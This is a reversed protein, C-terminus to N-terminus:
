RPAGRRSHRRSVEASRDSRRVVVETENGLCLASRGLYSGVAKVAREGSKGGWDKIVKSKAIM